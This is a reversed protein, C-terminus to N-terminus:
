NCSQQYATKANESGLQIAKQFLNCAALRNGKQQEVIGKLFYAQSFEPNLSLAQQLDKEALNVKGSKLYAFARNTYSDVKPSLRISKSYDSIAEDIRGLKSFENARNFYADAHEKLSVATTFDKIAQESNNSQAFLNGRNSYADAYNPQLQIARNFYNFAKDPQNQKLAYSGLNNYAQSVNPYKELVSKWLTEDNQWIGTREFSLYAFFLPFILLLKIYKQDTKRLISGALILLGIMPLYIYRDTVIQNGVPILQLVLAITILFWFTGFWIREQKRFYYLLFGIIIITPLSLYYLLPLSGNVLEPYPYFASLHFPFVFSVPYFLISHAVLFVRDVIDFDTSLDSLHGATERSLLTILGFILSIIFFPIKNIWRVKSFSKNQFIDVLILIVPLTVAASKSFCALVFFLLSVFYVSNEKKRLFKLYWLFSLLFFFSYVLNSFASVWSVSEVQMPHLAFILTLLYTLEKREFLFKLVKFVLLANMFHFMLSFIHYGLPNTDFISHVFAYLTTTAPQYMGVFTNSFIKKFSGLNLSKIYPNEVVQVYDDLYTFNFFLSKFYVFLLLLFLLFFFLKESLPKM